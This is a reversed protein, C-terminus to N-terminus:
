EFLTDISAAWGFSMERNVLWTFHIVIEKKDKEQQRENQRHAASFVSVKWTFKLAAQAHTRWSNAWVINKKRRLLYFRSLPYIHIAHITFDALAEARKSHEILLARTLKEVTQCNIAIINRVKMTVLIIRHIRYLHFIPNYQIGSVMWTNATHLVVSCYKQREKWFMCESIFSGSSHM